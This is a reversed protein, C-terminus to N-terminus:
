SFVAHQRRYADNDKMRLESEVRSLKQELESRKTEDDEFALQRELSDRERKLKKIERDVKDTSCREPKGAEPPEEPRDPADFRIQPNGDEDRELWYRGSPERKEEPIYEDTAPRQSAPRPEEKPPANRTEAAAPLQQVRGAPIGSVPIM